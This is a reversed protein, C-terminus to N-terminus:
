AELAPFADGYKVEDPHESEYRGLFELFIQRESVAEVRFCADQAMEIRLLTFVRPDAQYAAAFQRCASQYLRRREDKREPFRRLERSKDYATEARYVHWQATWCGPTCGSLWLLLFFLTLPRPRIM